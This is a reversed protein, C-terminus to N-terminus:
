FNLRGYGINGTHYYDWGSSSSNDLWVNPASYIFTSGTAPISQYSPYLRVDFDTVFWGDTGQLALQAWRAQVWSVSQGSIWNRFLYYDWDGKERDDGANDIDLWSHSTNGYSSRFGLRARVKADTDNYTQTGTRTRVSAFWETSVGRDEIPGIELKYTEIFKNVTKNWEADAEEKTLDKSFHMHLVPKETKTDDIEIQDDNNTTSLNGEIEQIPDPTTEIKECSTMTITILLVTLISFLLSKIKLNKM